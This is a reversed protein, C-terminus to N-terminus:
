WSARAAARAHCRDGACHRSHCSRCAAVGWAITGLYWPPAGEMPVPAQYNIVETICSRPLLLRDDMVPVLLCYLEEGASTTTESAPANM